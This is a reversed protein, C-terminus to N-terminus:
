RSSAPARAYAQESRTKVDRLFTATADRLKGIVRGRVNTLGGSPLDDFHLRRLLVMYIGAAAQDGAQDVVATLDLAGDLYHDAYLLKSAILTAGPLEPPAYVVEHTITVTPKLGPLDDESWFLAESVDALRDGPYNELYRELSPAYQYMYPSRSLMAQFVAAASSEKDSYVILASDGRARYGTVYDIMRGRFYASVVSDASPSALDVNARVYAIAEASLKVKCSGARCHALDQVDDHPLSLAAVDSAAAPESFLAFRLRSPDRLSTAFDAARRVYFSRPVDIRVIGFAAIERQDSPDLVKVVPKGSAAASMAGADLAMTQQLFTALSPPMGQAAGPSPLVTAALTGALAAARGMSGGTGTIICVSGAVKRSM